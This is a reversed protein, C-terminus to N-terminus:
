QYNTGPNTPRPGIFTQANQVASSVYLYKDAQNNIIHSNANTNWLQFTGGGGESSGIQEPYTVIPVSGSSSASQSLVLTAAPNYPNYPYDGLGSKFYGNTTGGESSQVAFQWLENEANQQFPWLVANASALSAGHVNLVLPTSTLITPGSVIYFWKPLAPDNTPPPYIISQPVEPSPSQISGGSGGGGCGVLSFQIIGAALMLALYGFRSPRECTSVSKRAM